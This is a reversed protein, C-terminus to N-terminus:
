GRVLFILLVVISAINLIWTVVRMVNQEKEAKMKGLCKACYAYRDFKLRSRLDNGENMVEILLDLDVKVKKGM